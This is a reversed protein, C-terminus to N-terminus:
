RMERPRLPRRQPLQDDELNPLPPCRHFSPGPGAPDRATATTTNSSCGSDSNGWRRRTAVRDQRSLSRMEVYLEFSRELQHREPHLTKRYFLPYWLILELSSTPPRPIKRSASRKGSRENSMSLHSTVGYCCGSVHNNHFFISGKFNRLRLRRKIWAM